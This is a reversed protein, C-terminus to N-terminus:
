SRQTPCRLFTRQIYLWPTRDQRRAMGPAPVACSSVGPREWTEEDGEPAQRSAAPRPATM